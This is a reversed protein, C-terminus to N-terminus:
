LAEVKVGGQEAADWAARVTVGPNFTREDALALRAVGSALTLADADSLGALNAYLLAGMFADGAGTANAIHDLPDGSARLAGAATLSFCGERGLSVVVRKAGRELLRACAAPVDGGGSIGSIESLEYRNPKVTHCGTLPGSLKRAYTCSVPDVFVPISPGYTAFIHELVVQPLGADLIIAAAGAIVPHKQRLFEVTLLQLISMDSVALAMEGRSDHLSLYVSSSHGPAVMAHTLDIGVQACDARIAGAHLDDGLATILKVPAGLAAANACINHTVGGVSASIVGPNSDEMILPAASRGMMDINVAGVGLIYAGPPPASM